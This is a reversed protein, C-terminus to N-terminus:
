SPTARTIASRLGAQRCTTRVDPEFGSERLPHQLSVPRAGGALSPVAYALATWLREVTRKPSTLYVLVLRGEPRLVRHMEQLAARIDSRALVDLVYSSFVADFTDDPYPLTTADAHRLGYRSHPANAMRQRARDLMAPSLDVGETWGTSNAEALPLLALGTGTGVDLVWEGDEVDLWSRARTRAGSSVYPVFVDYVRAIRQYSARLSARTRPSTFFM